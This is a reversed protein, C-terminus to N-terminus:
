LLKTLSDQNRCSTTSHLTAMGKKWIPKTKVQPLKKHPEKIPNDLTSRSTKGEAAM